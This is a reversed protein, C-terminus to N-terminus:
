SIRAIRELTGRETTRTDSATATTAAAPHPPLEFLGVVDVVVGAAAFVAVAAVVVAVVVAVVAPVEAPAVVEAEPAAEAAIPARAEAPLQL